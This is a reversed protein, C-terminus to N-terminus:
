GADASVAGEIHQLSLLRGGPGFDVAILDIRRREPLGERAQEYANALGVLRRQKAPTLSEVATGRADGRKCRVEVFALMDGREAVIDIEGERVRFNQERIRYGKALLHQVGLREGLDGLLRRQNPFPTTLREVTAAGLMSRERRM